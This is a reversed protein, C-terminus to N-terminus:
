KKIETIKSNATQNIEEIKTYKESASESHQSISDLYDKNNVIQQKLKNCDSAILNLSQQLEKIRQNNNKAM